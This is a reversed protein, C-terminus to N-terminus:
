SDRGALARHSLVGRLPQHVFVEGEPPPAGFLRLPGVECLAAESFAWERWLRDGRLVAGSTNTMGASVPPRQM